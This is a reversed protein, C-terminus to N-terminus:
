VGIMLRGKPRSLRQHRRIWLAMGGASLFLVVSPAFWPDSQSRWVLLGVGYYAFPLLEYWWFPWPGRFRRYRQLDRRQQEILCVWAIAAAVYICAFGLCLLSPAYITASGSALWVLLVLKENILM